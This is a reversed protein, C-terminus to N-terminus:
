FVLKLHYITLYGYLGMYLYLYRKSFSLPYFELYDKCIFVLAYSMRVRLKYKYGCSSLDGKDEVDIM